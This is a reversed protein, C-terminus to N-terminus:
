PDIATLAQNVTQDFVRAQEPTLVARMALVHKVTMAQLEVMSQHLRDIASQADADYRHRVTISASIERNAARMAEEYGARQVAYDAELQHLSQEQSATLNLKRHVLEDLGVPSETARMGYRVGLWGGVAAAILTLAVLVISTRAVARM